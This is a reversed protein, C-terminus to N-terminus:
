KQLVLLLFVDLSTRGIEVEFASTALLELHTRMVM